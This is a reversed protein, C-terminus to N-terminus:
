EEQEMISLNKSSPKKAAFDLLAYSVGILTKKTADNFIHDMNQDDINIYGSGNSCSYPLSKGNRGSFFSGTRFLLSSPSSHDTSGIPWLSSM